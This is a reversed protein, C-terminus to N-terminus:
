VVVSVTQQTAKAGCGAIPEDISNGFAVSLAIWESFPFFRVVAFPVLASPGEAFPGM